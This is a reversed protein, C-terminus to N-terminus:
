AIRGQAQSASYGTLAEAAPNMFVIRGEADTSIMGDAMAELTVRLREKEAALEHEVTKLHTIDTDIGVSRLVRGSEDWEIPKGRSLIWIYRGDRTLERYELTDHGDRGLGQKKSDSRVRERDDPHIRELWKLDHNEGIPENDPIGRLVRWMHS